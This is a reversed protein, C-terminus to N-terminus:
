CMKYFLTFIQALKERNLKHETSCVNPSPHCYITWLALTFRHLLVDALKLQLNCSSCVIHNPCCSQMPLQKDMRLPKLRVSSTGPSTLAHQISPRRSRLRGLTKTLELQARQIRALDRQQQLGVIRLRPRLQVSEYRLVNLM